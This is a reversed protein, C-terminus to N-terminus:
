RIKSEILMRVENYTERVIYPEEPDSNLFIDTLFSNDDNPSFQEIYTINFMAKVGDELTLEIFM